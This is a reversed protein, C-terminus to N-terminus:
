SVVIISYISICYICKFFWTSISHMDGEAVQSIANRARQIITPIVPFTHEVQWKFVKWELGTECAERLGSDKYCLRKSLRGFETIGVANCPREDFLMALFHNCHTAGAPGIKVVNADYEAMDTYVLNQKLSFNAIHKQVPHDEFAYADAQVVTKSFGLTCIKMGRSLCRGLSFGEGDRNQPHIGVQKCHFVQKYMLNHKVCVAEMSEAITVIRGDNPDLTHYKEVLQGLEVQWSM